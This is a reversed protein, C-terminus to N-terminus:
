KQLRKIKVLEATADHVALAALQSTNPRGARVSSKDILEMARLYGADTSPAGLPTGDPNIGLSALPIKLARAARAVDIADGRTDLQDLQATWAKRSGLVSAAFKKIAPDSTTKLIAESYAVAQAIQAGVVAGYAADLESHSDTTADRKTSGGCGALTLAVVVLVVSLSKLNQVRRDHRM